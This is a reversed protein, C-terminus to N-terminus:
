KKGYKKKSPKKGQAEYEAVLKECHLNKEPEWTNCKTPYGKWKIFYEAKGNIIRHGVVKEVVFEKEDEASASMKKAKKSTELKPHV